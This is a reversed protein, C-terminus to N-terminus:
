VIVIKKNILSLETENPKLIKTEEMVMEVETVTEEMAELVNEMPETLVLVKEVYYSRIAYM